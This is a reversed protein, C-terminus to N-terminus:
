FKFQVADEISNNLNDKKEVDQDIEVIAIYFHLQRLFRFLITLSYSNQM